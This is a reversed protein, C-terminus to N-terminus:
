VLLEDVKVNSHGTGKEPHDHWKGIVLEGSRSGESEPIDKYDHGINTGYDRPDM